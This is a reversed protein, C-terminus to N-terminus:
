SEDIIRWDTAEKEETSPFWPLSSGNKTTLEVFSLHRAKFKIYKLVAGDMKERTVRDGNTLAEWAQDYNM